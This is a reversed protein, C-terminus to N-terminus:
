KEMLAQGVEEVIAKFLIRPIGVRRKFKGDEM